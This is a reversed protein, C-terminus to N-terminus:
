QKRAKWRKHKGAKLKKVDKQLDELIHVLDDISEKLEFGISAIINVQPTKAM